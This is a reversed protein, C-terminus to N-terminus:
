GCSLDWNLRQQKTFSLHATVLGIHVATNILILTCRNGRVHMFHVGSVCCNLTNSHNHAASKEKQFDWLAYDRRQRSILSSPSVNSSNGFSKWEMELPGILPLLRNTDSAHTKERKNLRKCSFLKHGGMERFELTSSCWLADVSLPLSRCIVSTSLDLWRATPSLDLLLCNHHFVLARFTDDSSLSPEWQEKRNISWIPGTKSSVKM